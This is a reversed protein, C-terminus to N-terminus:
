GLWSESSNTRPHASSLYGLTDSLTPDFLCVAVRNGHDGANLTTMVLSDSTLFSQCINLGPPYSMQLTMDMEPTAGPQHAPSCTLLTAILASVLVSREIAPGVQEEIYWIQDLARHHFDYPVIM